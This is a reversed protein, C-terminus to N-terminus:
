AEVVDVGLADSEGLVAGYGSAFVVVAEDEARTGDRDVLFDGELEHFHGRSPHSRGRETEADGGGVGVVVGEFVNAVEGVQIQDLIQVERRQRQVFLQAGSVRDEGEPHTRRAVHGVLDVSLALPLEVLLDRCPHGDPGQNIEEVIWHRDLQDPAQVPARTGFLCRALQLSSVFHVNFIFLTWNVSSSM